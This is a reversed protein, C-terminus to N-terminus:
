AVLGGGDLVVAQGNIGPAAESVLFVVLSAVEEPAILRNQPSRAALVSRAKEESMGTKEVINAVSRDTLSTDVYGPCVANM